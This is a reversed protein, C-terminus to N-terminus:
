IDGWLSGYVLSKSIYAYSIGKIYILELKRKSQNNYSVYIYQSNDDLKFLNKNPTFEPTSDTNIKYMSLDNTRM